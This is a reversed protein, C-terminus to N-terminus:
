WRNNERKKFDGGGRPRDPRPKREEAINVGINRGDVETNNLAEIAKKAEDENSMEVFGFGKPRGTFKDTIIIASDVTGFKEFLEKLNQDKLNFSLGGVFLKM